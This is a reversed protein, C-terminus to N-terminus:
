QSQIANLSSWLEETHNILGAATSASRSMPARWRARVEVMWIMRQSSTAALLVRLGFMLCNWTLLRRSKNPACCASGKLTNELETPFLLHSSGKHKFNPDVENQTNIQHNYYNYFREKFLTPYLIKAVM